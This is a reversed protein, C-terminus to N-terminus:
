DKMAPLFPDESLFQRLQAAQQASLRPLMARVTFYGYGKGDRIVSWDRIQDRSFTVKSGLTLGPLQNPENALYATFTKSDRTSFDAVWIVEHTAASGAPTELAVKLGAEARTIRGRDLARFFSDLSTLAADIAASMQADGTEYKLTQDGSFAPSTALASLPLCLSILLNRLRM